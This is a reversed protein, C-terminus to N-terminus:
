VHIWAMHPGALLKDDFSDNTIDILVVHSSLSSSSTITGLVFHATSM